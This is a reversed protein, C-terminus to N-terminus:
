LFVLSQSTQIETLIDPYMRLDLIKLSFRSLQVVALSYTSIYITKFTNRSYFLVAFVKKGLSVCVNHKQQIVIFVTLKSVPQAHLNM